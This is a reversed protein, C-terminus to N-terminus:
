SASYTNLKYLGAATPAQPMESGCNPAAYIAWPETETEIIRLLDGDFEARSFAERTRLVEDGGRRGVERLRRALVNGLAALVECCTAWAPHGELVCIGPRIGRRSSISALAVKCARRPRNKKDM